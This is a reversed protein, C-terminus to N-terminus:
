ASQEAAARLRGVYAGWWAADVDPRHVTTAQPGVAGDRTGGPPLEAIGADAHSVVRYLDAIAEATEQM